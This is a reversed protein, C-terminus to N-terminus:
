LNWGHCERKREKEMRKKNQQILFSTRGGYLFDNMDVCGPDTDKCTESHTMLHSIACRQFRDPKSLIVEGQFLNFDPTLHACLIRRVAAKM